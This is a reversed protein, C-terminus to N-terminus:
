LPPLPEGTLDHLRRQLVAFRAGAVTQPPPGADDIADQLLLCELRTLTLRCPSDPAPARRRTARRLTTGTCFDVVTAAM